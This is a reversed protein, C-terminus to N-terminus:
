QRIDKTHYTGILKSSLDELENRANGLKSRVRCKIFKEHSKELNKRVREGVLQALDNPDAIEFESNLAEIKKLLGYESAHTVLNRGFVLNYGSYGASVHISNRLASAIESLKADWLSHDSKVYAIISRNVRKSANAQPSYIPTFLQKVGYTKCLDAMSKSVFHKANDSLITVPVGFLHFVDKEIYQIIAPSTANRLPKLLVFKSFHDLVILIFTNGLKSRLYPGLLDVYSHQFPREARFQSGMLPRLVHKPAKTEKCTTCISVYNKVDIAMRPWYYFKKLRDITKVFGGNSSLPPDHAQSLLSPILEDPVWLRWHGAETIPGDCQDRFHLRKFVHDGDVKLDPM